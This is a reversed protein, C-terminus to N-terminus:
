GGDDEMMRIEKEDEMMRIKEAEKQKNANFIGPVIIIQLHFLNHMPLKLARKENVSKV